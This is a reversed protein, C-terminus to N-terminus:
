SETQVQSVGTGEVTVESSVQGVVLSADARSKEAVRLILDKVEFRQFGPATVVINYHGPQLGSVLYDGSTNTAVTRTFGQETSTVSVTANPIIAGSADRVSGTISGEQAWACTAIVSLFVISSVFRTLLKM